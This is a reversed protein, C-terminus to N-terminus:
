DELIVSEHWNRQNEPPLKMYDGYIQTLYYDYDYPGNVKLGEFEYLRGNAYVKERNFISKFKYQGSFNLIEDSKYFDYKSVNQDFLRIRKEKKLLRQPLGTKGINLLIREHIPRNRKHISAYEDFVSYVYMMRYYLIKYKFIKKVFNNNPLGDLPFVDVYIDVISSKQTNKTLLHRTRNCIQVHQINTDCVTYHKIYLNNPLSNKAIEIFKNYDARPMAVDMDDDWPIFGKHRVAGLYTGGSIYYTLNNEICIKLIEKFIDLELLQIKRLPTLEGM